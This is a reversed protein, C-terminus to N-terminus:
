QTFSESFSNQTRLMRMSTYPKKEEKSECSEVVRPVPVQSSQTVQKRSDNCWRHHSPIGNERLNTTAIEMDSGKRRWPRPVDVTRALIEERVEQSEDSQFVIRQTEKKRTWEMDNFMLMFIIREGFKKLNLTINKFIMRSGKFFRCHHSNQSLTGSSSLQNEMSEWYNRTHLPCSFTQCM